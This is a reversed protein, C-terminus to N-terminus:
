SNKALLTNTALCVVLFQYRNSSIRQRLRPLIVWPSINKSSEYCERCPCFSMNVNAVRLLELRGEEERRGQSQEMSLTVHELRIKIPFYPPVLMQLVTGVCMPIPFPIIHMPGLSQCGFFLSKGQILACLFKGWIGM